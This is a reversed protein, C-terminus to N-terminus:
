KGEAKAIALAAIAQIIELADSGGQRAVREIDVLYRQLAVTTDAYIMPRSGCSGDFCDEDGAHDHLKTTM